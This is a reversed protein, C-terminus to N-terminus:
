YVFISSKVFAVVADMAVASSMESNVHNYELYMRFSACDSFTSAFVTSLPNAATHRTRTMENL